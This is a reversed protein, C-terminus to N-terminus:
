FNLKRKRFFMRDNENYYMDVIGVKGTDTWNNNDSILWYSQELIEDPQVYFTFKDASTTYEPKWTFNTEESSYSDLVNENDSYAMWAFYYTIWPELPQIVWETSLGVDVVNTYEGSVTGQLAKYGAVNSEGTSNWMLTAALFLNLM